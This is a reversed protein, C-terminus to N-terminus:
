ERFGEEAYRIAKSGIGGCEAHVEIRRDWGKIPFSWVGGQTPLPMDCVFCIGELGFVPTTLRMVGFYKVPIKEM